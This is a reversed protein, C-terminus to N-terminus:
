LFKFLSSIFQFMRNLLARRQATAATTSAPTTTSLTPTTTPATNIIVGKLARSPAPPTYTSGGPLITPGFISDLGQPTTITTNVSTSTPIIPAAPTSLQAETQQLQQIEAPTMCEGTTYTDGADCECQNTTQDFISNIGCSANESQQLEYQEEQTQLNDSQNVQQVYNATCTNYTQEAANYANIQSQCLSAQACYDTSAAPANCPANGNGGFAAYSNRIQTCYTQAQQQQQTCLSEM